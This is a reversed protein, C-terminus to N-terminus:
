GRFQQKPMAALQEDTPFKSVYFRPPTMEADLMLDGVVAVADEWKVVAIITEGRPKTPDGFIILDTKPLLTPTSKAWGTHSEYQGTERQILTYRGVYIDKGTKEHLSDLLEKQEQYYMVNCLGKARQVDTFLESEPSVQFDEVEGDRYTLPGPNQPRPNETVIAEARALMAKVGDANESDAVLLTLRNPICFVPKGSFPLDNFLDPLLIRSSDYDDDWASVFYGNEQKFKAVSADRLRELGIEFLEDFTTDWDKLDTATVTRMFGPADLVLARTFWTSLPEIAVPLSGSDEIRKKLDLFTFLVKERVVAVVQDFAEERATSLDGQLMMQVANDLIHEKKGRDAQCYETHLNGLFIRGHQYSVSFDAEDFKLEGEVGGKKAAAIVLEAFKAPSPKEFFGFM